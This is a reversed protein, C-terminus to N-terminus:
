RDCDRSCSRKRSGACVARKKTAAYTTPNAACPNPPTTEETTSRIKLRARSCKLLFGCPVPALGVASSLSSKTFPRRSLFRPSEIGEDAVKLTARDETCSCRSTYSRKTASRSIHLPSIIAQTTARITRTTLFSSNVEPAKPPPIPTSAAPTSPRTSRYLRNEGSGRCITKPWNM